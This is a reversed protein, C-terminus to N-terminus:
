HSLTIKDALLDAPAYLTLSKQELKGLCYTHNDEVM